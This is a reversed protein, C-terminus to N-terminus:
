DSIAVSITLYSWMLLLVICSSFYFGIRPRLKNGGTHIYAHIARLIVYAWALALFTTASQGAVMAAVCVVYFLTPTEFINAFHRSLKISNEPEVDGQYTKFYFGSVAGSRVSHIRARFLAALVVYTLAVMAFMPYVLQFEQM